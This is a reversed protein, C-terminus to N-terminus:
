TAGKVFVMLVSPRYAAHEQPSPYLELWPRPVSCAVAPAPWGCVEIAKGARLDAGYADASRCRHGPGTNERRCARCRWRHREPQPRGGLVALEEVLTLGLGEAWGYAEYTQWRVQGGNVQDQCKYFIRGGPRLLRVGEALLRYALGHREARGQWTHVGYRRGEGADTGNLKYPPDVAVVDWWDAWWSRFALLGTADYELVPDKGPPPAADPNPDIDVGLFHAPRVIKWWAGLGYTM